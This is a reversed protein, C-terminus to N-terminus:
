NGKRCYDLCIYGSPILGWNGIVASVDVHTGYLLSGNVNSHARGDATLESKSLQRYETSPGVRVRLAETNVTYRGTTYGSQQVDTSIYTMCVWGDGIYGWNGNTQTINVQTGNSLKRLIKSSTNPESRVRLGNPANVVTGLITVNTPKSEVTTNYDFWDFLGWREWNRTKLNETNKYGSGNIFTRQIGNEWRPSSEVCVGDGIHVGIHGSMHVIAGDKIQSFDSSTYSCYEIMTDANIDPMGNSAYKGNEPYGWLIGKILGSCDSLLYQGDYQNMFTGLKYLTPQKELQILRDIVDNIKM